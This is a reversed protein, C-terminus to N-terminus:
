AEESTAKVFDMKEIAALAAEEYSAFRVSKFLRDEVTDIIFRWSPECDSNRAFVISVYIGEEAYQNIKDIVLSIQPAM